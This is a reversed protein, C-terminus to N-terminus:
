VNGENGERGRKQSSEGLVSAEEIKWCVQFVYIIFDKSSGAYDGPKEVTEGSRVFVDLDSAM